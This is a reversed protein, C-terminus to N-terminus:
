EGKKAKRGIALAKAVRRDRIRRLLSGRQGYEDSLQAPSVVVKMGDTAFIVATQTQNAGLVMPSVYYGNGEIHPVADWTGELGGFGKAVLWRGIDEITIKM